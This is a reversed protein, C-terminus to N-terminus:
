STYLQAYKASLKFSLWRAMKAMQSDTIKDKHLRPADSIIAIGGSDSVRLLGAKTPLESASVDFGHIAYWFYNPCFKTRHPVGWEIEMSSHKSKKKDALYDSRSIKIEFEHALRSKTVSLLDCEWYYLATLNPVAVDHNKELMLWKM